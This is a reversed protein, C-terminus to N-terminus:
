ANASCCAPCKMPSRNVSWTLRGCASGGDGGRVAPPIAKASAGGRTRRLNVASSTPRVRRRVSAMRWMLPCRRTASRSITEGNLLSRASLTSCNAELATLASSQPTCRNSTSRKGGPGCSGSPRLPATHSNNFSFSFVNSMGTSSGNVSAAYRAPVRTLCEDLVQAHARDHRVHREEQLIIAVNLCWQADGIVGSKASHRMEPAVHQFPLSPRLM